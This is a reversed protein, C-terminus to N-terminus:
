RLFVFMIQLECLDGINSFINECARPYMKQFVCTRTCALVDNSCVSHSMLCPYPARAQMLVSIQCDVTLDHQSITNEDAHSCRNNLVHARTCTIIGKEVYCIGFMEAGCRGVRM